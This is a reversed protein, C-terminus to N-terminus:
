GKGPGIAGPSHGDGVRHAGIATAAVLANREARSAERARSVTVRVIDLAEDPTTAKVLRGEPEGALAVM